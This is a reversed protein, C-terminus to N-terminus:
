PKPPDGLGSHARRQGATRRHVRRRELRGRRAADVTGAVPPDHGAVRVADEVFPRAGRDIPRVVAREQLLRRAHRVFWDNQHLQLKVLEADSCSRWTAAGRSRRRRAIVKYIRGNRTDVQEYDHCEGTDCWDSVYVGGDPGYQVRSAASGRTTRSAPLGARAHAVYGSGARELADHNVRNGHINCTFVSNRYKAPWNDGLYIM